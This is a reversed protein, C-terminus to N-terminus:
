GYFIVLVGAAMVTLGMLIILGSRIFEAMPAETIRSKRTFRIRHSHVRYASHGRFHAQLRQEHQAVASGM